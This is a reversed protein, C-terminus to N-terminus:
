FIGGGAMCRVAGILAAVMGVIVAALHLKSDNIKGDASKDFALGLV